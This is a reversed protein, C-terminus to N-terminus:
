SAAYKGVKRTVHSNCQPACLVAWLEPWGRNVRNLVTQYPVGHPTEAAWAAKLNPYLVGDIEVERWKPM